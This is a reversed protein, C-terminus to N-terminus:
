DRRACVLFPRPKLPLLVNGPAIRVFQLAGQEFTTAHSGAFNFKFQPLRKRKDLVLYPVGIIAVVSSIEEIDTWYAGV